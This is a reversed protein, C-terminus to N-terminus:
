QIQQKIVINQNPKAEKRIHKLCRACPPHEFLCNKLSPIHAFCIHDRSVLNYDVPNIVQRGLDGEITLVETLRPLDLLSLFTESIPCTRIKFNISLYVM